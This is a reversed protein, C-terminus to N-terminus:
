GRKGIEGQLDKLLNIQNKTRDLNQEPRRTAYYVDGNLYDTLFRMAQIYIVIKAGLDLNKLELSTLKDKLHFLFGNDLARYNELSFNNGSEPDDEEKLNTYSRVMDGFDYLVSGRMLTDWDILALIKNTDTKDFLFNSIKPDAHIIRTPIQPLLILWEQLIHHNENLYEIADKAKKFRAPDANQIAEQYQKLRLEFDVFGKISDEIKDLPFDALHTHFSGLFKAAEYAQTSSQVSLFAQTAEIYKFIRWRNEYLYDGNAFAVQELIEQQYHKQRLHNGLNLINESMAKLNPFVEPNLKQLILQEGNNNVLYTQNIHGSTLQKFSLEAHIERGTAVLVKRIEVNNEM